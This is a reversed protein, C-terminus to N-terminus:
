IQIRKGTDADFVHLKEAAVGYRVEAGPELEVYGLVLATLRMAGAGLHIITEAGM